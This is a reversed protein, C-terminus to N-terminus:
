AALVHIRMGLRSSLHALIRGRVDRREERIISIKVLPM